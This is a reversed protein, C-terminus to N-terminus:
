KKASYLSLYPKYLRRKVLKTETPLEQYYAWGDRDKADVTGDNNLDLPILPNTPVNGTYAYKPQGNYGEWINRVHTYVFEQIPLTGDKGDAALFGVAPDVSIDYGIYGISNDNAKTPSGTVHPFPISISGPPHGAVYEEIRRVDLIVPRNKGKKSSVDLWAKASSVDSQYLVPYGYRNGTTDAEASSISVVGLGALVAATICKKM